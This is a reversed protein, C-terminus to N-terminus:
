PVQAIQVRAQFSFSQGDDFTGSVTMPYVEDGSFSVGGLVIETSSASEGATLKSSPTVGFRFTQAGGNLTLTATLSTIPRAGSGAALTLNLQPVAPITSEVDTVSVISLPLTTACKPAQNLASQDATRISIIGGTTSNAVVEIRSTVVEQASNGCPYAITGNYYNFYYVDTGAGGGSSSMGNFNYCLGGSLSAFDTSGEIQRAVQPMSEDGCSVGTTSVTAIEGGEGQTTLQSSQLYYLYVGVLTAALLAALVWELRVNPGDGRGWKDSGKM